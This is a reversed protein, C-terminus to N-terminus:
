TATPARRLRSGQLLAQIWLASGSVAPSPKRSAEHRLGIAVRGTWWVVRGTGPLVLPGVHGPPIALAAHDAAAMAIPMAATAVTPRTATRSM